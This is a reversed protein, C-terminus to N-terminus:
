RAQQLGPPLILITAPLLVLLIINLWNDGDPGRLPPQFVRFQKGWVNFFMLLKANRAM